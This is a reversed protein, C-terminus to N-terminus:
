SELFYTEAWKSKM